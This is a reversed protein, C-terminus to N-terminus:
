DRAKAVLDRIVILNTINTRELSVFDFRDSDGAIDRILEKKSPKKDM